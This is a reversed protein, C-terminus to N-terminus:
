PITAAVDHPLPRTRNCGLPLIAIRYGAVATMRCIGYTARVDDFTMGTPNGDQWIVFQPQDRLWNRDAALVYPILRGDAAVVPRVRVVEGSMATLINSSWYEGVGETLRHQALWQTVLTPPSTSTQAWGAEISRFVGAVATFLALIVLATRAISQAAPWRIAALIEPTRRAAIVMAFLVAPMVYRMPPGGVWMYQPTIGKGFQTSVACAAVDTLIGACLLRDLLLAPRRAFLRATVQAVAIIAIALAIFRLGLHLIAPPSLSTGAPNAGLLSFVGSFLAALNRGLHPWGVLGAVTINETTFGGAHAILVPLIAGFGTGALLVFLPIRENRAGSVVDAALLVLAPGFAFVLSFPDSAATLCAVTGAAACAVIIPWTARQHPRGIVAGFGLAALSGLVTGFHMDSMLLPNWAGIWGPGALLFVVAAGSELNRSSPNARDLCLFFTAVVLLAYTLAPVLALFFRHPGSFWELAAYPLTDTFYYDDLSVNWGSLLVNGHAVADGAVFSQASDSTQSLRGTVNLADLLSVGGICAALLTLLITRTLGALM